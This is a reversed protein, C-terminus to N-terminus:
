QAQIIVAVILGIVIVWYMLREIWLGRQRQKSKEIANVRMEIETLKATLVQIRQLPEQEMAM